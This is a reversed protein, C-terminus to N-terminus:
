KVKQNEEQERKRTLYKITNDLFEQEERSRASM